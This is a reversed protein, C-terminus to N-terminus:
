EWTIAYLTPINRGGQRTVMIWGTNILEDRAKSLQDASKFGRTRMAGRTIVLDGNKGPIYQLALEVLLKVARGSLAAFEATKFYANPLAAFGGVIRRDATPPKGSPM